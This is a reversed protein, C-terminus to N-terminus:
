ITDRRRWQGTWLGHRQRQGHTVPLPMMHTYGPGCPVSLPLGVLVSHQPSRPYIEGGPVRDLRSPDENQPLLLYLVPFIIRQSDKNNHPNNLTKQQKAHLSMYWCKRQEREPYEPHGNQHWGTTQPRSTRGACTTVHGSPWHCRCGPRRHCGGWPLRWRRTWSPPLAGHPRRWIGMQGRDSFPRRLVELLGESHFHHLFLVLILPGM